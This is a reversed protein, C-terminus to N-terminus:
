YNFLKGTLPQYIIIIQGEFYKDRTKHYDLHDSTLNTFVAVDYDIFDVRGQVLAHSSVEM